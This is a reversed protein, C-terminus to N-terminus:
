EAQIHAQCNATFPTLTMSITVKNILSVADRLKARNWSVNPRELYCLYCERPEADRAEGALPIRLLGNRNGRAIGSDRLKLNEHKDLRRLSKFDGLPLFSYVKLRTFNSLRVREVRDLKSEM